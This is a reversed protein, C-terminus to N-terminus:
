SCHGDPQIERGERAGEEEDQEDEGGEVGGETEALPGGGQSGAGGGAIRGVVEDARLPGDGVQNADGGGAELEGPGEECRRQNLVVDDTYRNARQDNPKSPSIQLPGPPAGLKGLETQKDSHDRIDKGEKHIRKPM